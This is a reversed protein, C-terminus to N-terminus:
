SVGDDGDIDYTRELSKANEVLDERAVRTRISRYKPTEDRSLVFGWALPQTEVSRLTSVARGLVVGQWTRLDDVSL